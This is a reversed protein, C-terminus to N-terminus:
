GDPWCQLCIMNEDIKIEREVKKKDEPVVIKLDKLKIEKM